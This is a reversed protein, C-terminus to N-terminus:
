PKRRAPFLREIGRRLRRRATEYQTKNMEGMEQIEEAKLGDAIGMLIWGVDQDGKFHAEIKSLSVAAAQRAEETLLADLPSEGNEGFIDLPDSESEEDFGALDGALAESKMSKLNRLGDAVSKMASAMWPVFPFNAPWNRKGQILRAITENVLEGPDDLRTGWLQRSALKQIKMWDADSLGEIAQEIQELTAPAGYESEM